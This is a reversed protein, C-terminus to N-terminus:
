SIRVRTKRRPRYRRRRCDRNMVYAHRNTGYYGDVIAEVAFGTKLYLRIAPMNEVSVELRVSRMGERVFRKESANVLKQGIGRRRMSSMVAVSAIRGLRKSRSFVNMASGVIRGNDEAVLVFADDRALFALVTPETFREIGFCREELMLLADLDSRDAQRIKM